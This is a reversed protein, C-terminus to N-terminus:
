NAGWKSDDIKGLLDALIDDSDSKKSINKHADIYFELVSLVRDKPIDLFVMTSSLMMLLTHIGDVISANEETFLDSIRIM